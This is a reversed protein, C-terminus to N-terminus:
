QNKKREVLLIHESYCVCKQNQNQIECAEVVIGFEPRKPDDKKEKISVITTITDGIFVPNPFRLRDFGYTFAKHNIQGATLGIGISHTLSFQAVRKGFPGKKAFEANVHHPFFDGSHMAHMVIDTETITRGPTTRTDGVKYDEFYQELELM